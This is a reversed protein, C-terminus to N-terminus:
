HAKPNKPKAPALKRLTKDFAAESTDCDLAKAAEVFVKHQDPKPKKRKAIM